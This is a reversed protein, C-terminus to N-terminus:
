VISKKFFEQGHECIPCMNPPKGIEVNGCIQCVYIDQAEIRNRNDIKKLYEIFLKSHVIEAKRALNFSFEALFTNEKKANKIYSKYMIKFEFTESTIAQILNERTSKITNKIQDYDIQYIQEEIVPEKTIKEIAKLHNKIHISEASSIANFLNSIMMLGEKYANEAFLTYKEKAIKEGKIADKLNEIITTIQIM